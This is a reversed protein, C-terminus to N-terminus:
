LSLMFGGPDGTSSSFPIYPPNIVTVYTAGSMASLPATFRLQTSSVFTLPVEPKGNTPWYGGLNIVFSGQTNFLNIVSLTSFGTGNITVTRGNQVISSVSVKAGIPISVANSVVNGTYPANVVQLSGPGTPAQAPITVQFQTSSGGPLPTLPGFNGNSSFLNVRPQNFGIGGITVTTGQVLVTQVFATPINPQVPDLNVGNVSLITPLNVNPSGFLLQQQSNSKLFGQDTNIVQVAVFGRGLPISPSLLNLTLSTSSQANPTFPGFSQVGFATPVFLQIVSGPTFGSGSLNLPAGVVVPSPIPNLTPGMAAGLTTAGRAGLPLAQGPHQIPKDASARPTATARPQRALVPVPTATPTMTRATAEAGPAALFFTLVSWWAVEAIRVMQGM